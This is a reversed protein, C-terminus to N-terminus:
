DVSTIENPNMAALLGLLRAVRMLFSPAFCGRDGVTHVGCPM